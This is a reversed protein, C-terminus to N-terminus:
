SLTDNKRKQEDLFEKKAWASISSKQIISPSPCEEKSLFEKIAWEPITNVGNTNKIYKSMNECLPIFGEKM